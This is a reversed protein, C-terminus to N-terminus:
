ILNSLVIMFLFDSIQYFHGENQQEVVCITARTVIDATNWVHDSMTFQM